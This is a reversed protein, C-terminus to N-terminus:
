AHSKKSLDVTNTFVFPIFVHQNDFFIKEHKVMKNSGANLTTYEVIFNENGVGFLRSVETLDVFAHKGGIWGYV